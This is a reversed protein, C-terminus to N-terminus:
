RGAVEIAKALVADRGAAVDKKTRAVPIDPLVGVGVFETGDPFRDWKTCVRATAGYISFQLPQGTSGCTPEGVLTARKSMKLPILFDEAASCTSPSTLVYVPGEYRPGSAPEIKDPSGEYWSQPRGWAQFTPNYLRTRWTSGEAPAKLFHALVGYGIDSSGGGNLRLDLIWAKASRIEDFRSEFDTVIKPDNFDNLAMYAINGPLQKLEFREHRPGPLANRKQSGNRTLMVETIKGDIGLWKTRLTTGPPGLLLMRMWRLERDQITSSSIYPDLDRKTIENVPTANVELLEMGPQIAGLDALNGVATAVPKGEIPELRVLPADQPPVANPYVNTHGDKLLAVAEQLIRGYEIDDKAAAVRPMFRELLGDWDAEPRKDLYVFNYKVVSWLRAFGAMRLIPLAEPKPAIKPSFIVYAPDLLQRALSELSTQLRTIADALTKLDGEPMPKNWNVALPLRIGVNLLTQGPGILAAGVAERHADGQNSFLLLQNDEIYGSHVQHASQLLQTAGFPKSFDVLDIWLAGDPSTWHAWRAYERLPLEVSVIRISTGTPVQRLGDLSETIGANWPYNVLAGVIDRPEGMLRHFQEILPNSDAVALIPFTLLLSLLRFM